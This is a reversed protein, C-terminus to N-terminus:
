AAPPEHQAHDEKEDLPLTIEVTAGAGPSSIINCTGKMLAARERMNALGMAGPRVAAPDFGCGNDAITFRYRRDDAGGAIVIRSARAYRQVNTVAEQAIPGIFIDGVAPQGTAVARSVASSGSPKPLPPLTTGMPMRTNFLMRRPEDAEAFIVHSGFNDRYGQSVIYYMPRLKPDDALPSAAMVKLSGIRANLHHDIATAFNRAIIGAKAESELQTARLSDYALWSSFVVLPAACLWLLRTLYTTLPM